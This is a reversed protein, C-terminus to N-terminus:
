RPYAAPHAALYADVVSKAMRGRGGVGEIGESRAWARVLALDPGGNAVSASVKRGTATAAAPQRPKAATKGRKATLEQKHRRQAISRYFRLKSDAEKRAQLARDFDDAHEATLDLTVTTGDGLTVRRHCATGQDMEVGTIDCVLKTTRVETRM